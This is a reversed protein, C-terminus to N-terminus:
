TSNPPIKPAEHPAIASRAALSISLAHLRVVPFEGNENNREQERSGNHDRLLSRARLSPGPASDYHAHIAHHGGLMGKLRAGSQSDELGSPIGNIGRRGHEVHGGDGLLMLRTNAPSAYMRAQSAPDWLGRNMLPVPGAGM